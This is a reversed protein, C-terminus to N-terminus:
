FQWPCVYNKLDAAFEAGLCAALKEISFGSRRGCFGGTLALCRVYLKLEEQPLFKLWAPRVEALLCMYTLWGGMQDERTRLAMLFSMQESRITRMGLARKVAEFDEWADDNDILHIIDKPSWGSDKFDRTATEATRVDRSLQFVQFLMEPHTQGLASLNDLGCLAMLGSVERSKKKLMEVIESLFLKTEALGPLFLDRGEYEATLAKFFKETM